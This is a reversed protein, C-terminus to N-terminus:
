RRVLEHFHEFESELTLRGLKDYELGIARVLHAMGIPHGEDAAMFAAALSANRIGGGSLTFKRALFEVDVDDALPAAAPLTRRWIRARDEELPVPFEIVFDLRRLFAQDINQRLNTALIVAGPHLEMRQLLYAVEVNAYRDHSDRVESRRGFLADAEDFFLMASSREAAGFVRRLNKETEGIYKSVITAVDVAYLELGLERAVAQAAMTKGTGSDGAFLVKLGQSPAVAQEYGWEGLVVHRHRLYGALSRLLRRQHEPLVLDDWSHRTDVRRALDGLRLASVRRAAAAPAHGTRTLRAAEEIQGLSLRFARAVDAVDDEGTARRWAEERDGVTPAPVEVRLPFWHELAAVRPTTALYLSPEPEALLAPLLRSLAEADHDDLGGVCLVRDELAAALIAGGRALPELADEAGIVLLGRARAAAAALAADPGAILVPVGDAARRIEALAPACGLPWAPPDIRQARAEWDPRDLRPGLLESVLRDALKLPRQLLECGPTSELLRLAHRGRLPADAALRRLVAEQPGGVLTAVLAPSALRRSADEQLYGYLRGYHPSVEPAACLTLIEAELEDLGLRGAIRAAAEDIAPAGHETALRRAQLDTVYLGRYPDLPNPDRAAVREVTLLLREDLAAFHRMSGGPEPRSRAVSSAM